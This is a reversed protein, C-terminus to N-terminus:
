QMFSRQFPTFILVLRKTFGYAFTIRLRGLSILLSGFINRILQGFRNVNVGFTALTIGM